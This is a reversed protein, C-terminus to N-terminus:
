KIFFFLSEINWEVQYYFPGIETIAIAQKKSLAQALGCSLSVLFAMKKEQLLLCELIKQLVEYVDLVL